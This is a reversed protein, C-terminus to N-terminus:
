RGQRARMLKEINHVVCYLRWQGEVRKGGRLTFRDLGKNYLRVNVYVVAPEVGFAL